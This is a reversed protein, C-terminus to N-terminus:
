LSAMTKIAKPMLDELIGLVLDEAASKANSGFGNVSGNSSGTFAKATSGIALVTIAVKADLKTPKDKDDAKLSALSANFLFGEDCKSKTVFKNNSKKDIADSVTETMLKVLSAKLTTDYVDKAECKVSVCTKGAM